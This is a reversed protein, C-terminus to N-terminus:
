GLVNPGGDLSRSAARADLGSARVSCVGGWRREGVVVAVTRRPVGDKVRCHGGLGTLSTRLKSLEDPPLEPLAGCMQQNGQL